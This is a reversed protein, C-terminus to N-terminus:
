GPVNQNLLFVADNESSLILSKLLNQRETKEGLFLKVILSITLFSATKIIKLYSGGRM